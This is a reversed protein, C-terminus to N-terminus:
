SPAAPASPSYRFLNFVSFQTPSRSCLLNYLMLAAERVARAAAAARGEAACRRDAGDPQRALGQGAPRRGAAARGHVTGALLGGFRRCPRRAAAAPLAEHLAAMCRAAPSSWISAPPRRGARALAAHLRPAARGAGAHRGARRAPPGAGPRARALAARMSAPNANYSEDILLADAARRRWGAASRWPRGAPASRGARPRCRQSTPAWRRRVVALVGLSNMSWSARGPVGLRYALRESGDVRRSSTAATRRRADPEVLRWDADPTRASASSARRAPTREAHRRLRAFHENDRNLVADGGPELGEFIEAKADAIAEISAFFELHAPDITTILAVHPRVQRSLARDRGCPEHRARVRRLRRRGRCARWASRCAGTITTAPPAPMPRRRGRWCTGCRRRPAPRASAAPSASSRAARSRARGRPGARELAALTDSVVLVRRRRGTVGDPRPQRDAAAAGEALRRPSSPM